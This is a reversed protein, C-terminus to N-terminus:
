GILEDISAGKLLSKIASMSNIKNVEDKVKAKELEALHITRQRFEEDKWAHVLNSLKEIGDTKEELRKNRKTTLDNYLNKKITECANLENQLINVAENLKMSIEGEAMTVRLAEIRRQIEAARVIQNCLTIFQDIDEQTLDPKDHTYRIFADEFLARDKEMAYSNIQYVFRFISLYKKLQETWQRQHKKMSSEEWGYNLYFNVKEIVQKLTKPPRYPDEARTEGVTIVNFELDKQNKAAQENAEKIKYEFDKVYQIITRCELSLQSLKPNQFLERAMEMYGKVRFNNEIYRKQEDNLPIMGKAAIFRTSLKYDKLKCYEKIAQAHKTRGDLSDDNFIRKTLNALDHSEAGEFEKDIAAMQAETLVPM